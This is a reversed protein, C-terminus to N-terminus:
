HRLRKLLDESEERWLVEDYGLAEVLCGALQEQIVEDAPLSVAAERKLSTVEKDSIGCPVIHGGSIRVGVAGIKRNEVWVGVEEAAGARAKVGYLAALRVMAAQLSEVYRRAGYGIERLSVIPYLVAQHPGHFTIDGGRETVHLEAGISNLDAEPLLLNHYTRRKGLTFTPPHQLSLVTDAIKGSKREALLKQQLKLSESYGVTGLKWVDACRRLSM